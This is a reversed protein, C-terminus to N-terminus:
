SDARSWRFGLEAAPRGKRLGILIGVPVAPKVMVCDYTERCHAGHGADALCSVVPTLGSWCLFLFAGGQLFYCCLRPPDNQGRFPIRSDTTDLNNMLLSVLQYARGYIGM